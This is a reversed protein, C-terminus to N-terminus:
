EKDKPKLIDQWTNMQDIFKKSKLHLGVYEEYLADIVKRIAEKTDPKLTIQSIQNYSIQSFLRIFHIARPDGHYRHKDKEWHEECLIGSYRPSYDFRGEKKGCIGCHRWNPAIGFRQLLQVEFINTIIEPDKGEDILLLAQKLFAYLHPDYIRDDVAADALNLLYTAYGALFIDAQIKRFPQIEKASNLFALGESRISGSYLAETFPQIAVTLPNNKRHAGKVYFMQKGASETFIKVLKDKEKHDKTFLILGKTETLKGM